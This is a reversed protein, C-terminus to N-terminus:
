KYFLEYGLDHTAEAAAEEAVERADIDEQSLVRIKKEILRSNNAYVKLNLHTVGEPLEEINFKVIGKEDTNAGISWKLNDTSLGVRAGKEMSGDPKVVHFVVEKDEPLVQYDGFVKLSRSAKTRLRISPDGFSVYTEWYYNARNKGNYYKWHERLANQTIQGFELMNDRYIGDFMRKELVDDEDWYTSDMSGWFFIAGQPHRQWTEGFSEELRFDGTICANSIVFPRADPHNLSKVDEQNMYPADWFTTAGHGSYDVITRGEQLADMLMYSPAEHTIAYIQDGGFLPFTPFIGVYNQQSTYNEIAYNHTEEAVEHRDDTALFSAAETWDDNMFRGLKYDSYKKLIGRLEIENRASIRGLMVDPGNIDSDYEETDLSRYYHDTVGSILHSDYSPIQELDGILLIYKLATGHKLYLKRLSQRIFEEDQTKANIRILDVEYGLQKKFNIYEKMSRSNKLENGVVFVFREQAQEQSADPKKVLDSRIQFHTILAYESTSPNYKFPRLTVLRKSVGNVLFPKTVEYKKSPLFSSSSYVDKNYEFSPVKGKIKVLSPQAPYVKLGAPSSKVSKNSVEDDNVTVEADGDVYFRLVPLDPEGYGASEYALYREVGRIVPKLFSEGYDNKVTEFAVANVYVDRIEQNDKEKLVVRAVVSLSSFGLAMAIFKM